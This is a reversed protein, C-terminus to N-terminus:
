HFLRSIRFEESGSHQAQCDARRLRASDVGQFFEIGIGVAQAAREALGHFVFLFRLSGATRELDHTGAEETPFVALGVFLRYDAVVLM